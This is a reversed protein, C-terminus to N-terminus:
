FDFVQKWLCLHKFIMSLWIFIFKHTWNLCYKLRHSLMVFVDKLVYKITLKIFGAEPNQDPCTWMYFVLLSCIRGGMPILPSMTHKLSQLYESCIVWHKMRSQLYQGPRERMQIPLTGRCYPAPSAQCQWQVLDMGRGDTWPKHSSLLLVDSSVGGSSWLVWVVFAILGSFSEWPSSHQLARVEPTQPKGQILVAKLHPEESSVM